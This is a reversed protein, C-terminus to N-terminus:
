RRRGGECAAPPTDIPGVLAEAQLLLSRTLDDEQKVRAQLDSIPAAQGPPAPDGAAAPHPFRLQAVARGLDRRARELDRTKARAIALVLWGKADLSGDLALCRERAAAAGPWDGSLYRVESMAMWYDRNSPEDRVASDALRLAEARMEPTAGPDRAL